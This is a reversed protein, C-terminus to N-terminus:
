VTLKNVIENLASSGVAVVVVVARTVAALVALLSPLFAGSVLILSVCSDCRQNRENIDVLKLFM